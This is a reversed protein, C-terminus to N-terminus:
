AGGRKRTQIARPAASKDPDSGQGPDLGSIATSPGHREFGLGCLFKIAEYAGHCVAVVFGREKLDKLWQRQADSATRTPDTSKLEVAVGIAAPCRPPREHIIVDPVGAKVGLAKRERGYQPKVIAENPVHYWLLGLADLYTALAKQEHKESAIDKKRAARMGGSKREM